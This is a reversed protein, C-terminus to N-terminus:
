KVYVDFRVRGKGGVVFSPEVGGVCPASKGRKVVVRSCGGEALVQLALRLVEPPSGPGADTPPPLLSRLLGMGKKPLARSSKLPEFMPDM